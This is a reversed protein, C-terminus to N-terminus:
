RSVTGVPNLTCNEDVRNLHSFGIYTALGLTRNKYIPPGFVGLKQDSFGFHDSFGLNSFGAPVTIHVM